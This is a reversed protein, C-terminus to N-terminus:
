EQSGNSIDGSFAISFPMEPFSRLITVTEARLLMRYATLKTAGSRHLPVFRHANVKDLCDLCEANSQRFHLKFLSRFFVNYAPLTCRRAFHSNDRRRM